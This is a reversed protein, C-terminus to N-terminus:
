VIAADEEEENRNSNSGRVSDDAPHFSLVLIADSGYRAAKGEAIGVVETMSDVTPVAIGNVDTIVMMGVCGRTAQSHWAVTGVTCNILEM